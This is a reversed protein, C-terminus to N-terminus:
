LRNNLNSKRRDTRRDTQLAYRFFFFQFYECGNGRHNNRLVRHIKAWFLIISYILQFFLQLIFIALM